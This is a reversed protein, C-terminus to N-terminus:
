SVTVFTPLPIDGGPPPPVEGGRVLHEDGYVFYEDDHCPWKRMGASLMWGDKNSACSRTM